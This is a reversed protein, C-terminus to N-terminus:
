CDCSECQCEGDAYEMIAQEVRNRAEKLGNQHGENWDDDDMLWESVEIERCVYDHAMLLANLGEDM